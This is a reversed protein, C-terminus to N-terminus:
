KVTVREMVSTHVCSGDARHGSKSRSLFPRKMAGIVYSTQRDLCLDM